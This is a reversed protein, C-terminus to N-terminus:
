ISRLILASSALANSSLSLKANLAPMAKQGGHLPGAIVRWTRAAMDVAWGRDDDDDKEEELEEEEEEEEEEAEISDEATVVASYGPPCVRVSAASLLAPLTEMTPVPFPDPPTPTTCICICICICPTTLTPTAGTGSRDSSSSSAAHPAPPAPPLSKM